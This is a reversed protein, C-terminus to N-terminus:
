LPYLEDGSLSVRKLGGFGDLFAVWAGDPSFFPIMGGETGPIPTFGRENIRRLYLQRGSANAAVFVIAKGDPSVAINTGVGRPLSTGEPLGIDFRMPVEPATPKPRMMSWVAMVTLISGVMLSALGIVTLRRTGLPRM